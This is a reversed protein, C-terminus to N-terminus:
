QLDDPSLVQKQVHRVIPLARQLIAQETQGPFSKMIVRIAAIPEGNRDRLPQIVAVTRKDKGYFVAGDRIAGTESDGGAQGVEGAAKSAVIRPIGVADPAYIKLGVLRPYKDLTNGLIAQVRSARPTYEIRTEAFRSLSDSKTWFGIKGSAFSTDTLEPIVPQDNLWIRIKNKQCQVRLTYWVEKALPLNPGIPPSRLGGVVKYFRLNQGLVSARVVYFSKEDQYRFVVGAMQEAVGDVIKFRTTLTFDDFVAGAYVLVPFHEDKVDASLQALVVQNTADPTAERVARWRGPAGEGVLVSTFGPPPADTDPPGFDLILEAAEGPATLRAALLLWSLWKM